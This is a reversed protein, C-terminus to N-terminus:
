IDKAQEIIELPSLWWDNTNSRYSFNEPLKGGVPPTYNWKAGVPPLIFKNTLSIARIADDESLMEEHLKEGPRIGSVSIKSNPALASILDVIKVSPIKPIFIEGGQMEMFSEIVFKVAEDLKIWFRTMRIDTITIPKNDEM